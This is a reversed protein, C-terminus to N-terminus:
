RRLRDAVAAVASELSGGLRRLEPQPSGAVRHQALGAAEHLAAAISSPDPDGLVLGDVWAERYDAFRNTVTPIGALPLELALHGPHPSNMLALGVDAQSLQAYYEDYSTKGLVEVEVSPGLDVPGTPAGAMRVLPRVEGDLREAWLRLGQLGLNFMNRAAAPRAYFFVRCRGDASPAWAQGAAALASRDVAPAFVVRPDIQTGTQDAVYRSLSLSNVLPQFGARYTSDARAHLDGWPYFSPEWDQILYVVRDRRARGADAQRMLASATAWLTALWVDDSHHGADDRAGDVSIRLAAAVDPYGAKALVSRVLELTDDRTEGTPEFVVIRLPLGLQTSLEGAALLATRIGAFIYRPALSQMLLVVRPHDGDFVLRSLTEEGATTLDEGTLVKPEPRPRLERRLAAVQHELATMRTRSQNLGRDLAQRQASGRKAAQRGQQLAKRTLRLQQRQTRQLEGVRSELRARSSLGRAAVFGTAAALLAAAVCVGLALRTGALTAVLAGMCAAAAIALLLHRIRV